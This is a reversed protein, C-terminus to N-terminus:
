MLMQGLFWGPHNQTTSLTVAKMQSLLRDQNNTVLRIDTKTYWVCTHTQPKSWNGWLHLRLQLWFNVNNRKVALEILLVQTHQVGTASGESRLWFVLTNPHFTIRHFIVFLFFKILTLLKSSHALSHKLVPFCSSAVAPKMMNFLQFSICRNPVSLALQM